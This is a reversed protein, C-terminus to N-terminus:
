VERSVVEVRFQAVRLMLALASVLAANLRCALTEWIRNTVSKNIVTHVALESVHDLDLM